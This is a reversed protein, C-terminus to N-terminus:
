SKSSMMKKANEVFNEARKDKIFERLYFDRNVGEPMQLLVELAKEFAGVKMQSQSLVHFAKERDYRASLPIKEAVVIARNFDENRVLAGSLYCLSSGLVTLDVIKKTINLALEFQNERVLVYVLYDLAHDKVSDILIGDVIQEAEAFSGNDALLQSIHKFAWAIEQDNQSSTIIKSVEELRGQNIAASFLQKQAFLKIMSNKIQVLLELAESFRSQDETIKKIVKQFTQDKLFSNSNQNAIELAAKVNGQELQISALSLLASAQQDCTLQPFNLQVESCVEKGSGIREFPREGSTNQLALAM